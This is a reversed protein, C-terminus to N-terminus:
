VYNDAGSQSYTHPNLDQGGYDMMDYACTAPTMDIVAPDWFTHLHLSAMLRMQPFM